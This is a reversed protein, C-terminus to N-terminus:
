RVACAASPPPYAAVEEEEEEEEEPSRAASQTLESERWRRAARGTEAGSMAFRFLLVALPTTNFYTASGEM